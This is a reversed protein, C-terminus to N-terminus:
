GERNFAYEWPWPDDLWKYHGSTYGTHTLPGHKAEYEKLIANTEDVSCDDCIIMKYDTYTQALISDVSERLTDACNYAAMIVSIHGKKM